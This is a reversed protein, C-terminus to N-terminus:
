EEDPPLGRVGTQDVQARCPINAACRYSLREWNCGKQCTAHWGEPTVELVFEFGTPQPDQAGALRWGATVAVGIGIFVGLARKM